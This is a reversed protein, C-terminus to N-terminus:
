RGITSQELLQVYMRATSYQLRCRMLFVDFAELAIM